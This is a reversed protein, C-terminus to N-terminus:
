EFLFHAGTLRRLVSWEGLERRQEDLSVGQMDLYDRVASRIDPGLMTNDKGFLGALKWQEGEKSLHVVGRKGAHEFEAFASEGHMAEALYRRACNRYRLALQRLEEGSKIPTYNESAAIPHPPLELKQSWRAWLSPLQEESSVRRLAEALAIRDIGNRSFLDVLKSVDTAARVTGVISVLNPTCIDAPLRHAIRLRLLDIRDLRKIITAAHSNSSLLQFLM